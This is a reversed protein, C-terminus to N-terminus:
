PHVHPQRLLESKQVKEGDHESGVIMSFRHTGVLRYMEALHSTLYDVAGVSGLAHVGAIILMDRGVDDIPLRAVYAIDRRIDGTPQDMPSEFRHGTARDRIAWVGDEDSGFSLFPDHDIATAIVASSKPGCIAVTDGDPWWQGDVPIRLPQVQFALTGLLTSLLESARADEASIVPTARGALLRLPVAVTIPGVGFFAREAEPATQRIQTIRGRTLGLEAAINAYSLGREDAAQNIAEKRLRALEAGRQQYITILEGAMRARRIPDPERRVREFQDRVEAMGM